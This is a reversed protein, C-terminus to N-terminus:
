VPINGAASKVMTEWKHLKLKVDQVNQDSLPNMHCVVNRSPVLEKMFHEFWPLDTIIHPVFCDRKGCIINELDGIDVYDIPHAGRKQHWSNKKENVMRGRATQYVGKLKGTTLQTEWWDEGFKDKMVRKVLERMSNELVYLVPYIRAMDQAEALKTSGLLPNAIRLDGAFRLERTKAPVAKARKGSPVSAPAHARVPTHLGRVRVVDEHPLYRGIQLGEEHAILYVAEETSMPTLKKKANARKSLGAAQIGLKALLAKKLEPNIM